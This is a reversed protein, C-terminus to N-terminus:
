RRDRLARSRLCQEVCDELKRRVRHVRIRLANMPIGLEQSLMQRSRIHDNEQHYRLVLNRQDNPLRQLCHRLCALRDDADPEEEVFAVPQWEERELAARERAARRAVEKSLLHAVGCFYGYPDTSRVETGEQIRRAVRNFTEDTLDEANGFGRWEFLRVLRRRITEYQLGAQHRDPDLFVLLAELSESTLGAARGRRAPQNGETAESM